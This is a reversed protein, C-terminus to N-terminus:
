NPSCRVAGTPPQPLIWLFRSLTCHFIPLTYISAHAYPPQIPSSCHRSSGDRIRRVLVRLDQRLDGADDGGSASAPEAAHSAANEHLATSNESTAAAVPSSDVDSVEATATAEAAAAGSNAVAIEEHATDQRMPPESASFSSDMPHVASRIFTLSHNVKCSSPHISHVVPLCSEHSFGACTFLVHQRTGVEQEFLSPISEM